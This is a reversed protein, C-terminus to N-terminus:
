EELTAKYLNLYFYVYPSGDLGKVRGNYAYMDSRQYMFIYPLDENLEQYYQAYLDKLKSEDTEIDIEKALEDVKPNVYNTKNQAGDSRFVTDMPDETLSWAMFMMDWDKGQQKQRMSVFDMAESTFKVGLEKWDSDAVSLISDVVPNDTAATFNITLKVGDKERIGDSGVIWGNDDLLKKAAELDYKYENKGKSYAWSVESQPENIVKAYNNYVSSVIKARNLGITLAQRVAKDKFQPKDCNFAIYGYGNTPYLNYGLFGIDEAGEVNDESVTLDTFDIDGSQLMQLKVPDTVVKYIVNKIKPTGLFFKDNAELVTEQGEKYSVFKYAGSSPGPNTYTEKIKDTNGQKYYDSYYASNVPYIQGGLNYIASSSPNDLSITITKDDKMEIGSITSAKGAHYEDVGLIKSNGHLLDIPGTYSADCIIRIALDVDKSTIPTGDSWNADDRIKFTYTKGDESVSHSETLYDQEEGKENPVMLPAFMSRAINTDYQGESYIPNLVGDPADTGIILTDKRNKVPNASMDKAVYTKVVTSSLDQNQGAGDGNASTQQAAGQGCGVLMSISLVLSMSAIIKKFKM